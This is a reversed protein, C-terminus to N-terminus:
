KSLQDKSVSKLIMKVIEIKESPAKDGDVIELLWNKLNTFASREEQRREQIGLPIPKQSAPLEVTKRKDLSRM